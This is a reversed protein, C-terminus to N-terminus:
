RHFITGNTSLNTVAMAVALNTGGNQGPGMGWVLNTTSILQLVLASYQNSSNLTGTHDSGGVIINTIKAVYLNTSLSAIYVSCSKVLSAALPISNSISQHTYIFLNQDIVITDLTEDTYSTVVSSSNTWSGIYISDFGGTGSSSGGTSSGPNAACSNILLLGIFLLGSMIMQRKIM